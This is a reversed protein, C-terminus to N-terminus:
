ELAEIKRRDTELKYVQDNGEEGQLTFEAVATVEYVGPTKFRYPHKELIVDDQDMPRMVGIEIRTIPDANGDSDQIVYYFVPKGTMIELTRDATNKLEAEMTFIANVKVQEPASLRVSFLDGHPAATQALPAPETKAQNAAPASESESAQCGLLAFLFVFVLKKM